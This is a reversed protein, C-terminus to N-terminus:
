HPTALIAIGKWKKWNSSNLHHPVESLPPRKPSSSNYLKCCFDCRKRSIKSSVDYGMKPVPLTFLPPVMVSQLTSLPNRHQVRYIKFPKALARHFCNDGSVASGTPGTPGLQSTSLKIGSQQAFGLGAVNGTNKEQTKPFFYSKFPQISLLLTM